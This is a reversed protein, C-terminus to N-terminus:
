EETASLLLFVGLLLLMEVGGVHINAITRQADKRLGNASHKGISDDM